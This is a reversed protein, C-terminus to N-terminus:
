LSEGLREIFGLMAKLAIEADAPEVHEAPNHSIGGRCRLFLMATPCLAALNMADHGAGSPLRFEPQGIAALSASLLGMLTPDCPSAAFANALNQDLGVERRAAIAGFEALIAKAAADRRAPDISRVDLTFEVRGPIVNPAGPAAILRGVTAVVDSAAERAIREAALVMEAAAALADKRLPMTTTGAHGAMGIVTLQYRLQSAIGTVVGVALGEAELVPGQEIHAEFYALAPGHAASLYDGKADLAFSSPPHKFGALADTLAVGDRDTIDLETEGLIGAVVRSTLMSAPFRSGEEDGFAYIEIPFPPRKGTYSLTAVAEIGLMIGLPGDYKGGDRVSDIHSGIILPPLERWGEYRGILNAAADTRVSMGAGRMWEAVKELAASHAPTLYARFLMGEADSYPAVGLEDCRAVARAGGTVM